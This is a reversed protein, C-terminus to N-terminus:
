LINLDLISFICRDTANRDRKITATEARGHEGSGPPPQPPPLPTFMNKSLENLM